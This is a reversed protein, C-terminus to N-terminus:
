HQARRANFADDALVRVTGNRGKGPELEPHPVVGIIRFRATEAGSPAVRRGIAGGIPGAAPAARSALVTKVGAPFTSGFAISGRLRAMREINPRSRRWPAGGSHAETMMSM